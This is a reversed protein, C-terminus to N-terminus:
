FTIKCILHSFTLVFVQKNFFHGNISSNLVFRTTSICHFFAWQGAKKDRDGTRMGSREGNGRMSPFLCCFTRRMEPRWERWWMGTAMVKDGESPVEPRWAKAWVRSMTSDEGKWRRAFPSGDESVWSLPWLTVHERPTKGSLWWKEAWFQGM